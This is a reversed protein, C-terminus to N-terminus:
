RLVIKTAYRPELQVRLERIEQPGLEFGQRHTKMGTADLQVQHAGPALELELPTTGVFLGDVWVMSGQPASQLSLRSAQSGAREQLARRNVMAAPPGAPVLLPETSRPGRSAGKGGAAGPKGDPFTLKPPPAKARAGAAAASSALSGYEAAAQGRAQTAGCLLGVMMAVQWGARMVRM